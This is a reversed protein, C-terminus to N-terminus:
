ECDYKDFHAEKFNDYPYEEEPTNDSIEEPDIIEGTEINKLKGDNTGIFPSDGYTIHDSM